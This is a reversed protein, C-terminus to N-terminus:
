FFPKLNLKQYIVDVVGSELEELSSNNILTVQAMQKLPDMWEQEFTDRRAFEQEGVGQLRFRYDPRKHRIDYQADIWLLLGNQFNRIAVGEDLNRCGEIVIGNFRSGRNHAAIAQRIGLTVLFDGGFSKRLDHGVEGLVSRSQYTDVEDFRLVDQIIQSTTFTYFGFRRALIKAVEGKGARISGALGIVPITRIMEVDPINYKWIRAEALNTM